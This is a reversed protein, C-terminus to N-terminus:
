LRGGTEMIFDLVIQYEVMGEHYSNVEVLLTDSTNILFNLVELNESVSLCASSINYTPNDTSLGVMLLDSTNTNRDM